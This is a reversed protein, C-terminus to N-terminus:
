QTFHLFIVFVLSVRYTFVDRPLRICFPFHEFHLDFLVFNILFCFPPSKVLESFVTVFRMLSGQAFNEPSSWMGPWMNVPGPVLSSILSFESLVGLDHDLGMLRMSLAEYRCSKAYAFCESTAFLFSASLFIILSNSSILFSIILSRTSRDITFRIKFVFTFKPIYDTLSSLVLGFLYSTNAFIWETSWCIHYPVCRHM